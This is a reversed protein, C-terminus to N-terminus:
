KSRSLIDVDIARNDYKHRREKGVSVLGFRVKDGVIPMRQGGNKLSDSGMFVERKKGHRDLYIIFGYRAYSKTVTGEHAYKLKLKELFVNRLRKREEANNTRAETKDDLTEKEEKSQVEALLSSSSDSANAESSVSSRFDKDRTTRSGKEKNRGTRHGRYRDTGKGNSHDKSRRGDRHRGGSDKLDTYLDRWEAYITEENNVGTCFRNYRESTPNLKSTQVRATYWYMHNERGWETNTSYHLMELDEKAVGFASAPYGVEEQFERLAADKPDEGDEMMGKPVGWLPQRSFKERALQRGALAPINLAKFRRQGINGNMKEHDKLWSTPTTGGYRLNRPTSEKVKEVCIKSEQHLQNLSTALPQAFAFKVLFWFSPASSLLYLEHLLCRTMMTSIKENSIPTSESQGM